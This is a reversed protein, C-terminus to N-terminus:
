ARARGFRARLADIQAQTRESRKEPEAPAEPKAQGRAIRAMEVGAAKEAIEIFSDVHDADRCILEISVYRRGRDNAGNHFESAKCGMVALQLDEVTYGDRFRALIAKRRKDDLRSRANSLQERWFDFVEDVAAGNLRTM